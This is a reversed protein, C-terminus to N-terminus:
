GPFECQPAWTGPYEPDEMKDDNGWIAYNGFFGWNTMNIWINGARHVRNQVNPNSVAPNFIPKLPGRRPGIEAFAGSYILLLSVAMASITKVLSQPRIM